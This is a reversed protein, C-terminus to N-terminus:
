EDCSSAVRCSGTSSRAHLCQIRRYLEDGERGVDGPVGGTGKSNRGCIPWASSTTRHSKHEAKALVLDRVDPHWDAVSTTGQLFRGNMDM